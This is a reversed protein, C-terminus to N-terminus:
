PKRPTILRYYRNTRLGLDPVLVPGSITRAAVDTLRSWVGDGLHDTFELQYTRNAVAQFILTPSCSVNTWGISLYSLPDLPDTGAIYEDLNSMHDGDPDSLADALSNTNLQYSAEWADPIGDHDFDSVAVLTAVSSRVGVTNAPNSVVVDYTSSGQVNTLLLYSLPSNLTQQILVSSSKRWRFLRPM